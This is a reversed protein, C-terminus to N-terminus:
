DFYFGDDNEEADKLKKQRAALMSALDGGGAGSRTAQRM